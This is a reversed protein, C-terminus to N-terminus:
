SARRTDAARAAYGRPGRGLWDRLGGQVRLFLRLHLPEFARVASRFAPRRRWRQYWGHVLPYDGVPFRMWSLRHIDCLWSIDALSLEDGLLWPDDELADNMECLVDHFQNLAADIEYSTLGADIYRRHFRYLSGREGDLMRLRELQEPSKRAFSRFLFQFSLVRISAKCADSQSLWRRMRIRDSAERPSLPPGELRTDIYEIIDNSEVVVQGDHVLTPVVVNPNLAAYWPRLHEGRRLDLHHSVWDVGKEALALRVRQSCQSANNHFLHVGRLEAAIDSRCSILPM